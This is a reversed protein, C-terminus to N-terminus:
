FITDCTIPTDKNDPLLAVNENSGSMESTESPRNQITM